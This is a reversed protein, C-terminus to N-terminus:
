VDEEWTGKERCGCFRGRGRQEAWSGSVVEAKLVLFRDM